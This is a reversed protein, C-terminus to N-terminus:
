VEEEMNLYQNIRQKSQICNQDFDTDNTSTSGYKSEWIQLEEEYKDLKEYYLDWVCVACGQGCCEEPDPEEPKIPKQPVIGQKVMEKEEELAKQKRKQEFYYKAQKIRLRHDDMNLSDQKLLHNENIKLIKPKVSLSQYNKFVFAFDIWSQPHQIQKLTFNYQGSNQQSNGNNNINTNNQNFNQNHNFNPNQFQQEVEM